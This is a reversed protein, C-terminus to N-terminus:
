KEREKRAFDSSERVIMEMPLMETAFTSQGSNLLEVVKTVALVGIEFLPQRVVSLPPNSVATAPHDDFGVFAVDDPVSIGKDRLAAYAKVGYDINIIATPKQEASLIHKLDAVDMPKEKGSWPELGHKALTDVVGRFRQNTFEGESKEYTKMCIVQRHGREVLHEAAACAGGYHDYDVGNTNYEDPIYGIVAYPIEKESLPRIQEPTTSTGILIVADVERSRVLKSFDNDAKNTYLMINIKIQEAQFLIGRLFEQFYWSNMTSLTWGERGTLVIGIRDSKKMVLNRAAINPHFDYKEVAKLIKQRTEEKVGKRGNLVKSITVRSYGTLSSLTKMTDVQPPDALTNIKVTNDQKKRKKKDTDM